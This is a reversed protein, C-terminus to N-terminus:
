PTHPHTRPPPPALPPSPPARSPDPNWRPRPQHKPRPETSPLQPQTDPDSTTSAPVGWNLVLHAEDVVVRALRTGAHHLVPLVLDLVKPSVFLYRLHGAAARRLTYSRELALDARGLAGAIAVGLQSSAV